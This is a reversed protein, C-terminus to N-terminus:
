LVTIEASDRLAQRFESELLSGFEAGLQGQLKEGQVTDMSSYDGATVRVLEVVVADGASTLVYDASVSDGAGTMNFATRLLQPSLATNQRDVALEVRWEYSKNAAIDELSSGSELEALVRTAETNVAETALSENVAAIISGRVEELPLREPLYHKRVHLAVFRGDSLEIVDSNNGENLVDPSYAAELLAAQEFLGQAGSRTVKSAQEVVLGLQKAPGDLSAANFALDKLSEVSLLLESQAEDTQLQDEIQARREDFTPAEIQRRETLELLHTGADSIVPDSVSNLALATVAEEIEAPFSDGTSYGIDGGRKASGVDKSYTEALTTFSEGQSLKEQIVALEEQLAEANENTLLIHSVRNETQSVFEAVELQYAEMLVAESIPKRFDEQSLVVFDLDVAEESMYREPNGEYFAKIEAESLAEVREFNDRPITLYRFDRMEALIKASVELEAPTAFDSASLGALLQSLLLDDRLSQKFLRPTYGNEALLQKYRQASFVGEEQFQPMATVVSAISEETVTLDLNEAAQMLLKRNLLSELAQSKIREDEFLAPDFNEGMANMLRRKQTVVAQELEQPSIEEGNVEAIGNSGGGLLISEIGFFAFSIVILGVIVKAVTGQANKRIDQLM